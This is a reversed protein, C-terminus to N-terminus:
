LYMAPPARSSNPEIRGSSIIEDQPTRFCTPPGSIHIGYPVPFASDPSHDRVDSTEPDWTRPYASLVLNTEHSVILNDPNGAIATEGKQVSVSLTYIYVAFLIIYPLHTSLIGFNFM